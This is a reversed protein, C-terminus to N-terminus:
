AAREMKDLAAKVRAYTTLKMTGGAEIEALRVGSGLLKRSLTTVEVGQREALARIRATLKQTETM